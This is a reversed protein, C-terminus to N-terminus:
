ELGLLDWRDKYDILSNKRIMRPQERNVKTHAILYDEREQTSM